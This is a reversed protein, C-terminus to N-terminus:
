VGLDPYTGSEEVMMLEKAYQEDADMALGNVTKELEEIEALEALTSTATKADPDTKESTEAPAQLETFVALQDLKEKLLARKAELERYMDASVAHPGDPSKEDAEM